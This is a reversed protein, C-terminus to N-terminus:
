ENSNGLIHKINELFEQYNLYYMFLHGKEQYNVYAKDIKAFGKAKEIAKEIESVNIQSM